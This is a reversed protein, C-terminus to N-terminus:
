GDDDFDKELAEREKNSYLHKNDLYNLYIKLKEISSSNM